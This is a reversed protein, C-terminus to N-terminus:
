QKVKAYEFPCEYIGRLSGSLFGAAFTRLELGGTMPIVKMM